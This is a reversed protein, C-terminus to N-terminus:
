NKLRVVFYNTGAPLPVDLPKLYEYFIGSFTIEQGVEPLEGECLIGILQCDFTQARNLVRIGEKPIENEAFPTDVIEGTLNKYEGILSGKPCAISRTPVEKTIYNCLLAIDAQNQDNEESCQFSSFLLFGLLLAIPTRRKKM